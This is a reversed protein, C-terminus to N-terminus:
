EAFSPDDRADARPTWDTAFYSGRDRGWPDFANQVHALEPLLEPINRILLWKLPADDRPGLKAMLSHRAPDPGNHNVWDLGFQTYFEARYSSTFFRDSFLRRSANIIFIQFQTESIAFGHPRTSEALYGVVTDVDEISDVLTGDPHGNCDDPYEAKWGDLTWAFRLARSIIVGERCEHQGYVERLREVLARQAALAEEEEDSLEREADLLRADIFDDFSRLPRLGIQRRLENFRPVGRQRDRLIDLAAVDIVRGAAAPDRLDLNQLFAPHNMLSLGGARQRGFSLALDRLGIQHMYQTAQGRFTNVLPLTGTIRNPGKSFDRLEVIDPMLPHLRYVSVFEETFNFPVGFHNTGGNIYRTEPFRGRGGVTGSGVIGPGAAFASYWATAVEADRSENMRGAMDALISKLFPHERALGYWNSFMATRLPQNYLLQPTWETTHIKAIQASVVLRAIQFLEEDTVKGYPVAVRPADPRRLGSDRRPYAKAHTRFSDVFLNHERVFLTHLFSTGISWNEPFAASEQGEWKPNMPDARCDAPSGPLCSRLVPLYLSADGARERDPVPILHLKAPDAPDRHVRAQSIEDHGYIQSADWWATTTNRSVFHAREPEGEPTGDLTDPRGRAESLPPEMVMGPNCSGAPSGVPCGLPQAGSGNRGEDLHSFWDHTMFQIWFGALVNLTAAEAYDCSKGKGAACAEADSQARTFLVRSVVQPDPTTISTREGHRARGEEPADALNYFTAEFGVNRGFPMGTSGMAPNLVDNCIGTLTRFRISEGTCTQNGQADISIDALPLAAGTLRMEPWVRLNRGEASPLGASAPRGLVYDRHTLNDYLSFKVLEVRARELDVLSGFYGRGPPTAIELPSAHFGDHGDLSAVGGASWYSQWDVFPSANIAAFDPGGRCAGEAENAKGLFRDAKETAIEPVGEAVAQLCAPADRDTVLWYAFAGCGIVAAGALAKFLLRM